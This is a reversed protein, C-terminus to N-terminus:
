IKHVSKRQRGDQIKKNMIIAASRALRFRALTAAAVTVQHEPGIM